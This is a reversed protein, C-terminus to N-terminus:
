VRPIVGIRTVLPPAWRRPKAGPSYLESSVDCRHRSTPTVISIQGVRSKFRAGRPLVYVVFTMLLAQCIEISKNKEGFPLTLFSPM